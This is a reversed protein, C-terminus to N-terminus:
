HLFCLIQLLTGHGASPSLNAARGTESETFILKQCWIACANPAFTLDDGGFFTLKGHPFVIFEM